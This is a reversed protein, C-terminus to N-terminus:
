LHSASSNKSQVCLQFISAVFVSDDNALGSVVLILSKDEVFFGANNSESIVSLPDETNLMSLISSSSTKAENVTVQFLVSTKPFIVPGVLWTTEVVPSCTPEVTQAHIDSTSFICVISGDKNPGAM